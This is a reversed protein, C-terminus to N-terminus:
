LFRVSKYTKAVKEVNMLFAYGITLEFSGYAYKRLSNTIIDYSGGLRIGDLKSGNKFEAGLMLSVDNNTSYIIGGYVFNNYEGLLNISAFNASTGSSRVFVSPKLKLAPNSTQYEYGGFLYYHRVLYKYSDNDTNLKSQTLNIASLGFYAREVKYHVGLGMDFILFNKANKIDQLVPDNPHKANFDADFGIQNGGLYLGTGLKGGGLKFQYSYSLKFKLQKEFGFEHKYISFGAGSSIKKLPIGVSGVFINSGLSEGEQNKFGLNQNRWIVSSQGMDSSGFHGPNVYDYSFMNHTIRSEQQASVCFSVASFVM